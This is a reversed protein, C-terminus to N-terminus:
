YLFKARTLDIGVAEDLTTKFASIIIPIIINNLNVGWTSSPKLQPYLIIQLAHVSEIKYHMILGPGFKLRQSLILQFVQM